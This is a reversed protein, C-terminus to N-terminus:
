RRSGQEVPIFIDVIWGERSFTAELEANTVSEQLNSVFVPFSKERMSRVKMLLPLRKQDHIVIGMWSRGENRQRSPGDRMWWGSSM